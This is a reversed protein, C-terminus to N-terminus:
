DLTRQWPNVHGFARGSIMDQVSGGDGARPDYYQNNVGPLPPAHMIRSFILGSMTPFPAIVKQPPDFHAFGGAAHRKAVSDFPISDVLIIVHPTFCDDYDDMNYLRDPAGDGDDDYEL